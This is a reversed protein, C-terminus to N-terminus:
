KRNAWFKKGDSTQLNSPKITNGLEEVFKYIESAIGKRRFMPKIQLDHAELSNNNIKFTAYGAETRGDMATVKLEDSVDGKNIWGCSAILRYNSNPISKEVRFGKKFNDVNVSEYTIDAKDKEMDLNHELPKGFGRQIAGNSIARDIDLKRSTWKKTVNKPLSSESAELFKKFTIM